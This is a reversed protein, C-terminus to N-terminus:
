EVPPPDTAASRAREPVLQRLQWLQSLHRLEASALADRYHGVYRATFMVLGVNVIVLFIPTIPESLEFVRSTIVLAGDIFAHSVPVIGLLEFAVPIILALVGLLMILTRHRRRSTIAHCMTNAVVFTPLLVYIGSLVASSAIAISSAVTVWPVHDTLERNRYSFAAVAGAILFSGFCLTIFAVSKLGMLLAAPLFFLVIPLTYLLAARKLGIRRSEYGARELEEIVEPPAQEPPVSLLEVLVRLAEGHNPDLAIARGVETLARSRNSPTEPRLARLERAAALYGDVLVKRSALDRDGSLFSEVADHLERATAHREGPNRATAKRWIATLEPAVNEAADPRDRRDGRRLPGGSPGRCVHLSKLTLVEFLIAGLAYVDTRADVPGGRLQEPAMYAPTGLIVGAATRAGRDPDRFTLREGSEELARESDVSEDEHGEVKAVGWDLVYVEGFDGLMVNAPKLDRHVVGRAHAFDVALCVRTYAALLKHLTYEATTYQDGAALREILLELTEGRVRKMTFFSRGSADKALDYVPVIAPHELQGQVRAERLFRSDLDPGSRTRHVVKMAVARGIRRDHCLLVEGMGGEGLTTQAEYRGDPESLSLDSGPDRVLDLAAPLTHSGSLEERLTTGLNEATNARRKETTYM